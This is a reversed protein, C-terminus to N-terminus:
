HARRRTALGRERVRGRRLEPALAVALCHPASEDTPRLSSHSRRGWREHRLRAMEEFGGKEIHRRSSINDVAVKVVVWRVGEAKLGDIIFTICQPGIGTGRSDAATVGDELCRTDAPLPFEGAAAALSPMGRTFTFSCHLLRPGELVLNLYNGDEVRRRAETPSVTELQELLRADGLEGRRMVVGAAPQARPYDLSLDLVYLVHTENM